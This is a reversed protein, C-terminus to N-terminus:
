PNCQDCFRPDECNKGTPYFQEKSYGCKLCRYIYSLVSRTPMGCLECPLGLKADMIGFGPLDCQPCTAHIKDVLKQAAKAIVSMRTPNYMARMDTEAFVEGYQKNLVDFSQTLTEWDTIGKILGTNEEHCKRLILGHSPFKSRIAFEKLETISKVTQGGFNTEHSVHRAFIELGNKRDAFFLIEDDAPLFFMFPHPGFSGESAMGLDCDTLDMAMLCKKRAATLPDTEREIEGTFTGLIDTDFNEPVFCKVGLQEELLPAIVKQKNHKTAIVLKRNQFINSM